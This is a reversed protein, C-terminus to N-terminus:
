ILNNSVVKDSTHRLVDLEDKMAQAEEALRQLEDNKFFLFVYQLFFFTISYLLFFVIIKHCDTCYHVVIVNLIVLHM